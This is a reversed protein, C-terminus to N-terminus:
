PNARESQRRKPRRPNTPTWIRATKADAILWSTVYSIQAVAAHHPLCASRLLGRRRLTLLRPPCFGGYAYVVTPLCNPVASPCRVLFTTVARPLSNTARVRNTPPRQAALLTSGLGREFDGEISQRPWSKKTISARVRVMTNYYALKTRSDVSKSSTEFKLPLPNALADILAGSKTWTLTM